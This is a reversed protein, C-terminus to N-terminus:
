SGTGVNGFCFIQTQMRLSKKNLPIKIEWCLYEKLFMCSAHFMEREDFSIDENDGFAQKNVSGASANRNGEASSLLLLCLSALPIWSHQGHHQSPAFVLQTHVCGSFTKIM